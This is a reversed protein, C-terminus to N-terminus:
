PKPELLAPNVEVTRKRGDQRVRVRGADELEGLAEDLKKGERVPSLNQLVRRGVSGVSHARCYDLLWADLRNANVLAPPLAFDGLFRRAENLHWAVIRGAAVVHAADIAGVAGTEVIHFLAALRVVNDAAKSAVDRVDGLKGGIGLESEVDNYFRIWAAKADTTLTLVPPALEGRDNLQPEASLLEDLRRHFRALAPWNEPPEKYPRNGQNSPPHAYLFRAFFGIGRALPGAKDCFERLAPEQVQLGITLRAGKVVFSGGERRRDVRIEGGDWLGNLQALNRTISERQMAHAGFVAGAEASIVAASPWRALGHALAEPTADSYLLRPVRPEAPEDLQLLELRRVDDATDNGSKAAQKIADRLGALQADWADKAARYKAVTPKYAEAQDREYERIPESFYRDATSKREGSDAITLLWVGIPGTLGEDRQVDALGQAAVSVASLASAAVLPEPAQAYDRVETVADRILSPLAVLPYPKQAAGSDVKLSQLEPWEGAELVAATTNQAAPQPTSMDPAVARGIAGRIADADGVDNFDTAGSPRNQGFEPVAVFGGVSAAAHRARTLGPNGPTEADDDACVTIRVGPYKARLARAVPELNGCDFAVAVAHGTAQHITAATAYGEAICISGNPKGIAHYCGQKQGGALFRKEGNGDITQVSCLEGTANLMPVLLLGNAVRVGYPKVGKRSLYAHEAGPTGSKWLQRARDKAETRRREVDAERQRRAADLHQRQAAAEAPALQRGINAKWTQWGLGDRHNEFGGAPVGDAFFIYSADGKGNKGGADARRMEGHEIFDPPVIGRAQLADRFQDLPNM